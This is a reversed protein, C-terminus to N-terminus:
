QKNLRAQLISVGLNAAGGLSLRDKLSQQFNIKSQTTKANGYADRFNEGKKVQDFAQDTAMMEETIAQQMAEHNFSLANILGPMLKLVQQSLLLSKILPEKTLQLDRQYGSPLSILSQIQAMSGEIVSLSARMLEVVDPNAKNPMISSGTTHSKALKIFDFEKTMFLSLDWSFRRINLMVQYLSQLVLLDFKGRSNQAYVPNVQVREFGLEKAVEERPLKFPVGFGAATGLPSCDIYKIASEILFTDDIMAEAFGLLWVAVSNPMARQLHTYGPMATYQHQEALGIVQSALSKSLEKISQLQSKTFLRTCTLVQDNRSRGTHSKKGLEGLKETLYFEIASHGDEYSNDLIFEGLKFKCKLEDLCDYLKKYEVDTLINITNLGGIHAQTATIDYVFLHKDLKIDQGAMFDMLEKDINANDQDSWLYTKM